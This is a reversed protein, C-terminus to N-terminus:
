QRTERDELPNAHVPPEVDLPGPQTLAPAPVSSSAGTEDLTDEEYLEIEEDVEADVFLGQKYENLIEYRARDKEELKKNEDELEKIQNRQELVTDTTRYMLGLALLNSKLGDWLLDDVHNPIRGSNITEIVVDTLLQRMIQFSLKRDQLLSAGPPLNVELKPESKGLEVNTKPSATKSAKKRKAPIKRKPKGDAKRKKAPSQVPMAPPEPSSEIVPLPPLENGQAISAAADAAAKAAKEAEKKAKKKALLDKVSPFAVSMTDLSFEIILAEEDSLAEIFLSTGFLRRLAGRIVFPWDVWSPVRKAIGSPIKVFDKWLSSARFRKPVNIEDWERNPQALLREFKEEFLIAKPPPKKLEKNRLTGWLPYFANALGGMSKENVHMFFYHDQWYRDANKMEGVVQKKRKPYVSYRDHDKSNEQPYYIALIDDVSLEVGAKDALVILGLFVRMGNSMLQPIALQYHHMCQVLLPPLPLRLRCEFYITYICIWGESVTDAREDQFPLRLQVENPFGYRGRIDSLDKETLVSRPNSMRLFSKVSLRRPPKALRAIPSISLVEAESTSALRSRESAKNSTGAGRRSHQFEHEFRSRHITSVLEEDDSSSDSSYTSTWEVDVDEIVQKKKDM